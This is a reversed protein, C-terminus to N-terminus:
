SFDWLVFVGSWVKCKSCVFVCVFVYVCVICFCAVHFMLGLAPITGSGKLGPHMEQSVRKLRERPTPPTQPILYLSLPLVNCSMGHKRLKTLPLKPEQALVGFGQWVGLLM